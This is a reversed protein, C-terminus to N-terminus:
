AHRNQSRKKQHELSKWDNAYKGVGPFPLPSFIALLKYEYAMEAFCFLFFFFNFRLFDKM